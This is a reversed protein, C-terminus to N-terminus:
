TTATGRRDRAAALEPLPLLTPATTLQPLAQRGSCPPQSLRVETGFTGGGSVSSASERGTEPAKRRAGRAAKKPVEQLSEERSSCCASRSPHSKLRPSIGGM